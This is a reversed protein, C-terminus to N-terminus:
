AQPESICTTARQVPIKEGAPPRIIAWGQDLSLGCARSELLAALVNVDGTLSM